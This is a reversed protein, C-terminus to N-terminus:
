AIAIMYAVDDGRSFQKVSLEYNGATLSRSILLRERDNGIFFEFQESGNKYVTAIASTTDGALVQSTFTFTSDGGVSFRYADKTDVQGVYDKVEIKGGKNLLGLNYASSSDSGPDTPLTSPLATPTITLDYLATATGTTDVNLFYTGTAPLVTSIPGITLGVDTEGNGIAIASTMESSDLLGNLNADYHLFMLAGVSSAKSMQINLNSLQGLQFKYYKNTGNVVGGASDKLRTLPTNTLTGLNIPNNLTGSGSNGSNPTSGGGGPAVPTVPTVPAASTTLMYRTAKNTRGIVQVYYTGADLQGQFQKSKGSGRTSRVMVSGSSNLVSFDASTRLKSLQLDVNSSRNLTFKYFDVRDRKNLSNQKIASRGDLAGLSQAKALSNDTMNLYGHEL